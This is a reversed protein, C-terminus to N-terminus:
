LQLLFYLPYTENCNQLLDLPVDRITWPHSGQSKLLLVFFLLPFQLSVFSLLPDHQPLVIIIWKLYGIKSSLVLPKFSLGLISVLPTSHSFSWLELHFWSSGLPVPFYFGFSFSCLWFRSSPPVLFWSIPPPHVRDFDHVLLFRSGLVLIFSSSGLVM